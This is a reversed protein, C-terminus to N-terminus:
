WHLCCPGCHVVRRVVVRLEHFQYGERVAVVVSLCDRRETFRCVDEGPVADTPGTGTDGIM